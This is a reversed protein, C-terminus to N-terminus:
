FMLAIDFTLRFSSFVSVKFITGALNILASSSCTTQSDTLDSLTLRLILWVCLHILEAFLLESIAFIHDLLLQPHLETTSSRGELCITTPEFGM